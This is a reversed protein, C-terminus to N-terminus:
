CRDIVVTITLLIFVPRVNRTGMKSEHGSSNVNEQEESVNKHYILVTYVLEVCHFPACSDKRWFFLVFINMHIFSEGKFNM